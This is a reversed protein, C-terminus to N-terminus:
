EPVGAKRLGEILTDLYPPHFVLYNKRAYEITIGPRHRRLEGLAPAIAADDSLHGLASVMILWPAWTDFTQTCKRALAV